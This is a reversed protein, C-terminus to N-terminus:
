NTFDWVAEFKSVGHFVSAEAGGGPGPIGVVLVKPEGNPDISLYEVVSKAIKAVEAWKDAKSLVRKVGSPSRGVIRVVADVFPQLSGAKSWRPGLALNFDLGGEMHGNLDGPSKANAVIVLSVGGSAGVGLGLRTTSAAIAMGKGFDDISAVYGALTDIGVVAFQTGANGALGIWINKRGTDAAPRVDTVAPPPGTVPLHVIGPDDAKSFRFNAGDSTPRRCGVKRYLYWNIEAPNRTKFNLYCLDNASLGRARVEPRDALTWWNDRDTVKYPKTEPPVYDLPSPM